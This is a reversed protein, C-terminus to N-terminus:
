NHYACKNYIRFEFITM